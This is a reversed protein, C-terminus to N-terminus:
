RLAKPPINFVINFLFLPLSYGQRNGSKLQIAELKERNLNIGVKLKEYITKIINLHTEKIGVNELAKTMSTYQIKDSVKESDTSIIM